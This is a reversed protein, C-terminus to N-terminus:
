DFFDVEAPIRVRLVSEQRFRRKYEAAVERLAADAAGGAPHLIEVVFTSERDIGGDATRWQGEARWVTLGHPFRPTVVEALFASWAEESVTDGGPMGRGLFLRDAVWVQEVPVPAPPVAVAPACGALLIPLLIRRLSSLRPM